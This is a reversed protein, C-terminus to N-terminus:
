CKGIGSAEINNSFISRFFTSLNECFFSYTNINNKQIAFILVLTADFSNVYFQGVRSIRYSRKIQDSLLLWLHLSRPPMDALFLNTCYDWELQPIGESLHVIYSNREKQLRVLVLILKKQHRNVVVLVRCKRKIM